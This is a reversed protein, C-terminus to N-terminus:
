SDADVGLGRELSAVSEVPAAATSFVLVDELGRSALAAALDTLSASGPAAPWGVAAADEQLVAEAVWPVLQGATSGAGDLLAIYVVEFGADRLARAVADADHDVGDSAARAM